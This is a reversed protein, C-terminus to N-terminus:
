AKTTRRKRTTSKKAPSKKATAKKEKLAALRKKNERDIAGGQVAKIIKKVEPNSLSSWRYRGERDDKAQIGHNRLYARLARPTTGAAEAIEVTGVGSKEKKPAAKAKSKSKSSRRKRAPAEDPDEDEEEEEDDEEEDEEEEDEEDEDEEVEEDEEEEVEDLDDLLDDLDEDDDEVEAAKKNKPMRRKGKRFDVLIVNGDLSHHLMTSLSPQEGKRSRENSM